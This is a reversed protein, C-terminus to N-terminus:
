FKCQEAPGMYVFPPDPCTKDPGTYVPDLMANAIYPFSLQQVQQGRFPADLPADM